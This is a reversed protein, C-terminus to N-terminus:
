LFKRLLFALAAAILIAIAIIWWQFRKVTKDETKKVTSDKGSKKVLSDTSIIETHNIEAAVTQPKAIAKIEARGSDINVTVKLSNNEFSGNFSINKQASSNSELTDGKTKLVTDVKDSITKDQHFQLATTTDHKQTQNNIVKHMTGCAASLCFLILLINKM